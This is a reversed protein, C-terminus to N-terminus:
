STKAGTARRLGILAMGSAVLVNPPINTTGVPLGTFDNPLSQWIFHIVTLISNDAIGFLAFLNMIVGSAIMFVGVWWTMSSPIWYRKLITFILFVPNM